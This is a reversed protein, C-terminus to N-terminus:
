DEYEENSLYVCGTFTTLVNASNTYRLRMVGGVTIHQKFKWWGNAAVYSSTGMVRWTVGADYSVEVSVGSAGSDHSAVLALVLWTYWSAPQVGSTVSTAAPDMITQLTITAGNGPADTLVLKRLVQRQEKFMHPGARDTLGM